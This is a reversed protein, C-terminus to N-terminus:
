SNIQSYKKIMFYSLKNENYIEFGLTAYLNQAKNKKLVSLKVPVKTKNAKQIIKLIIEKGFGKNQFNPEIQIQIIEIEINNESLKLLGIQQENLMIIKAHEFQHKIRNILNEELIVQGSSILHEVMTQKRLWLLFPIDDETADRYTILTSNM